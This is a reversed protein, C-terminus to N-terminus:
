WFWAFIYDLLYDQTNTGSGVESFCYPWGALMLWTVEQYFTSWLLTISDPHFCDRTPSKHHQIWICHHFNKQCVSIGYPQWKRNFQRKHFNISISYFFNRTAINGHQNWIQSFFINKTVWFNLIAAWLYRHLLCLSFIVLWLSTM